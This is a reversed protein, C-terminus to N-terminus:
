GHNGDASGQNHVALFRALQEDGLYRRVTRRDASLLDLVCLGDVCHGFAPDVNFALARAGMKVYQRLLVPAGKGDPEIDAIVRNLEDIEGVAGMLRLSGANAVKRPDFRRRPRVLEAGAARRAPQSLFAVLLARSLPRYQNSISVPGLLYRYQPRQALFSGIGKWLLM